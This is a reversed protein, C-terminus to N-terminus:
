LSNLMDKIIQAYKKFSYKKALLFSKRQFDQRRKEDVMAEMALVVEGSRGIDVFIASDEAVERHVPIDSLIMAAGSNAAELIPLNFGEQKSLNVFALCNRYLCALEEEKLFGTKVINGLNELSDFSKYLGGSFLKGGALVLPIGPHEASFKLYEEILFNVNKREDYGGVYLIFRSNKLSFRGLVEKSFEKGPPNKYEESVDNYVVEIKSGDVKCYKEIDNKSSGSVTFVLDALGVAKKTQSHYLKSLIGKRYHRNMWPICDHVVVVTKVGKKYWDRTWPNSPYTFFALDVHELKFFEPIQIQEWWTKRMGATGIKKEALIKVIVNKPFKREIEHPIKEPVALIYENESDIRALEKFLNQTYQGIGTFPKVLM